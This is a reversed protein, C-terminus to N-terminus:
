KPCTPNHLSQCNQTREVVATLQGHSLDSDRLQVQIQPWKEKLHNLLFGIGDGSILEGFSITLELPHEEDNLAVALIQLKTLYKVATRAKPLLLKGKDSLIIVVGNNEREFLQYGLSDDLEIIWRSFTSSSKGLRKAAKSFSGADAATVFCELHQSTLFLM